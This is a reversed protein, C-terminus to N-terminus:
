QWKVACTQTMYYRDSPFTTTVKNGQISTSTHKMTLYGDEVIVEIDTRAILSIDKYNTTKSDKLIYSAGNTTLEMDRYVDNDRCYDGCIKYSGTNKLTDIKVFHLKDTKMEKDYWSCSAVKIHNNEQKKETIKEESVVDHTISETVQENGKVAQAEDEYCSPFFVVFLLVLFFLFKL